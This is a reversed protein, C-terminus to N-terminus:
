VAGWASLTCVSCVCAAPTLDAASVMTSSMGLFGTSDATRASSPSMSGSIIKASIKPAATLAAAGGPFLASLTKIRRNSCTNSAHMRITWTTIFSAGNATNAMMKLVTNM